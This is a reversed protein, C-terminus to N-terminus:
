FRKVFGSGLFYDPAAESLGIGGRVDFQLNNSFRFTFGGDFVHQTQATDAGSPAIVFWETYAGVRESLTYNITLSQALDLYNSGTDDIARNIQTSAGVALFDNIDWGYLWNIGPLTEDETLTPHGTPVTAQFILAMEPLISEQPTLGLKAGIYLDELGNFRAIDAFNTVRGTAANQGLRLEFWEAFMGIRLLAEPFSHAVSTAGGSEDFFYTYGAELQVVGRGVTTSAETFDPRDSQLPVDYGAPGGSFSTGYSWQLLTKRPECVPPGYSVQEEPECEIVAASLAIPEQAAATLANMAAALALGSFCNWTRHMAPEGPPISKQKTNETDVNRLM